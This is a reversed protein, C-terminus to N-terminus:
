HTFGNVSGSKDYTITIFMSVTWRATSSNFICFWQHSLMLCQLYRLIAWFTNIIISVRLNCAIATECWQVFLKFPKINDLLTQPIYSPPNVSHFVPCVRTKLEEMEQVRTFMFINAFEKGYGFHCMECSRFNKWKTLFCSCKTIFNCFVLNCLLVPFWLFTKM